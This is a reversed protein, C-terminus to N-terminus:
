ADDKVEELMHLIETRFRKDLEAIVACGDYGDHMDVSMIAKAINQPTQSNYYYMKNGIASGEIAPIRISVVRLGNAMYSLIKSPFSTANFAADPNQTSLGIDCSQIFQIYDEGSLCGDYTVTCATKKALNDITNQMNKTDSENGFGIVHIHYNAPLYEAAAAAMTGGKRPDFTGAYVVHIKANDWGHLNRYDQKCMKAIEVAYTGHCLVYLKEQENAVQSLMETPFVFSDASRFAKMERERLKQDNSVDGYIEEVELILNFKKIKRALPIVNLLSTAHYVVVTDEKKANKILYAFLQCRLGFFDLARTIKNKRGFTLFYHLRGNIGLEKEWSAEGRASRSGCCSVVCHKKNLKDIVRIIYEMKNVASLYPHQRSVDYKDYYYGVYYIM